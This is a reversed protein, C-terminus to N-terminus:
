FSILLNFPSLIHSCKQSLKIGDNNGQRQQEQRIETKGSDYRLFERRLLVPQEEAGSKYGVSMDVVTQRESLDIEGSPEGVHLARRGLDVSQHHGAIECIETVVLRQGGEEVIQPEAAADVVGAPHDGCAVVVDAVRIVGLLRVLLGPLAEDAGEVFIRASIYVLHVVAGLDVAIVEYHQAVFAVVGPIVVHDGVLLEGEQVALERLVRLGTLRDEDHEMLRELADVPLLAYPCVAADAVLARLDLGYKFFILIDEHDASMHVGSGCVRDEGVDGAVVADLGDVPDVVDVQRGVAKDIVGTHREVADAILELDILALDDYPHAVVKLAVPEFSIFVGYVERHLHSM